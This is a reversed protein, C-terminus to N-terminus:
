TTVAKSKAKSVPKVKAGTKVPEEDDTLEIVERSAAPKPAHKIGLPRKLGNM